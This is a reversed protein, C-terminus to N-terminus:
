LLQCHRMDYREQGSAVCVRLALSTPLDKGRKRKPSTHSTDFEVPLPIYAFAFLRYLSAEISHGNEEPSHRISASLMFSPLGAPLSDRAM